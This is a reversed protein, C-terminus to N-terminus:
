RHSNNLFICYSVWIIWINKFYIFLITIINHKFTNVYINLLTYTLVRKWILHKFFEHIIDDAMLLSNHHDPVYINCIPGYLNMYIWISEYLNMYRMYTWISEYLNMYLWISLIHQLIIYIWIPWISEYLNIIVNKFYFHHQCM